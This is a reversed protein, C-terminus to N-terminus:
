GSKDDKNKTWVISGSRDYKSISIYERTIPNIIASYVRKGIVPKRKTNKMFFTQYGSDIGGDIDFKGTAIKEGLIDIVEGDDLNHYEELTWVFGDNDKYKIIEGDENYEINVLLGASNKFLIENENEDFVSIFEWKIIGLNKHQSHSYM